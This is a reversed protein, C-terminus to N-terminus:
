PSSPLLGISSDHLPSIVKRSSGLFKTRKLSAAAEVTPKGLQFIWSDFLPGPRSRVFARGPRHVRRDVRIPDRVVAVENGLAVLTM